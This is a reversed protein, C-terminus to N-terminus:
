ILNRSEMVSTRLENRARREQKASVSCDASLCLSLSESLNLSFYDCSIYSPVRSQCCPTRGQAPAQLTLRMDRLLHCLTQRGRMESASMGPSLFKPPFGAEGELGRPIGPVSALMGAPTSRAWGILLCCSVDEEPHQPIGLSQGPSGPHILSEQCSYPIFPFELLMELSFVRASLKLFARFNYVLM